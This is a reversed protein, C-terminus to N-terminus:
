SRNCIAIALLSFLYIGWSCGKLFLSFPMTMALYYATTALLIGARELVQSEDPYNCKIFRGVLLSAFALLISFSLLQFCLPLSDHDHDPSRSDNGAQLAYLTIEVGSTLCFAMFLASWDFDTGAAEVVLKREDLEQEAEAPRTTSFSEDLSLVVSSPSNSSVVATSSPLEM